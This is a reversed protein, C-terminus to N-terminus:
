IQKETKEGKGEEDGTEEKGEESEQTGGEEMGILNIKYGTLQSALRVNQGGRGIALSLQDDKVEVNAEKTAENLQVSVIKAPSLANTIFQVADDSWEIIDVKEGGLESIVTQVRAGRQGVCSGVPDINSDTATVAIKSRLGADRSVNKIVVTGTEIEPVEISFLKRVIDPHARSVIIEPGKSGMEVSSIYVRLRQGMSYNENQSQEQPPLIATTTALDCYVMRGEVRQVVVNVIEGVRDKYEAFVTEREVERIRQIIVQKATQAAMRGFEEPPILEKRIVDGLKAGKKLKQADEVAVESRPDFYEIDEEKDEVESATSAKTAEFVKKVEREAALEEETKEPRLPKDSVTKEDFIQWTGSNMDFTAKINQDKEGFDKRYAAALAAEITETISAVPIGKEEALQEIAAAIAKQDQQM